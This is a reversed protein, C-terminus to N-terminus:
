AVKPSDMNVIKLNIVCMILIFDMLYHVLQVKFTLVNTTKGLVHLNNTKSFVNFNPRLVVVGIIKYKIYKNVNRIQIFVILINSVFNMILKKLSIM